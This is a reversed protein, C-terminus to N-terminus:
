RHLDNHRRARRASQLNGGLLEQDADQKDAAAGAFARRDTVAQLASRVRFVVENPAMAKGPKMMQFFM